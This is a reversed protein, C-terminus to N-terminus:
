CKIDNENLIELLNRVKFAVPYGSYVGDLLGQKWSLYASWLDRDQVKPIAGQSIFSFVSIKSAEHSKITSVQHKADIAEESEPSKLIISSKQDVDHPKESESCHLGFGIFVGGLVAETLVYYQDVDKKLEPSIDAGKRLFIPDITKVRNLTVFSGILHVEVDKSSLMDDIRSVLQELTNNNICPSPANDLKLQSVFTYIKSELDNSKRLITQSTKESSYSRNEIRIVSRTFDIPLMENVSLPTEDNSFTKYINDIAKFTADLRRRERNEKVFICNLERQQDDGKLEKYFKSGRIAQKEAKLRILEEEINKCRKILLPLLIEGKKINNGLAYGPYMPLVEQENVHFQALPRNQFNVLEISM